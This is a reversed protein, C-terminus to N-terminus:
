RLFHWVSFDTTKRLLRQDRLGAEALLARCRETDCRDHHLEFVAARTRGLLGPYNEIFRLEAGEIDCKLLDIEDDADILTDLDVFAAVVSDATDSFFLSNMAHFNHQAIKATGARDGVLGEVVRIGTLGDNLEFLRRRLEAAVVPAGEVLVMRSPDGGSRRLLDIYRLTFFGVNAGLDIVNLPRRRESLLAQQISLDYEGDVFIDNYIVWESDNTVEIKIGSRVTWGLQYRLFRVARIKLLIKKLPLPVFKKASQYLSM